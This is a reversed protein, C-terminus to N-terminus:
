FHPGMNLFQLYGKLLQPRGQYKLIKKKGHQIEWITWIQTNVDTGELTKGGTSDVQLKLNDSRTRRRQLNQQRCGTEELQHIHPLNATLEQLRLKVGGVTQTDSGKSVQVCACLKEALGM